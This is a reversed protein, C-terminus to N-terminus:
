YRLYLDLVLCAGSFFAISLLIENPLSVSDHPGADFPPPQILLSHLTLM